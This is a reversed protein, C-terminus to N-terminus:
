DENIKDIDLDNLTDDIWNATEILEAHVESVLPDIKRMAPVTLKGISRNLRSNLDNWFKEFQKATM